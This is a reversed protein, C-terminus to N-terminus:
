GPPWSGAVAAPDLSIRDSRGPTRSSGPVGHALRDYLALLITHCDGRHRRHLEPLLPQLEQHHQPTLRSVLRDLLEPSSQTHLLTPLRGPRHATIVLRGAGATAKVVRRWWFLSWSGAGDLLVAHSGGATALEALLGHRRGAAPDCREQVVHWGRSALASALEGLLTTKGTGHMGVVAGRGGVASLRDVLRNMSRGTPFVFSLQELRSTRFPNRHAVVPPRTM